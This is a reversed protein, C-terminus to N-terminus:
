KRPLSENVKQALCVVNVGPMENVYWTKYLAPVHYNINNFLIQLQVCTLWIFYVRQLNESNRTFLIYVISLGQFFDLTLYRIIENRNLTFTGM